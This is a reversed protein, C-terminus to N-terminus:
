LYNIDPMKENEATYANDSFGALARDLAIEAKGEWLQGEQEKNQAYFVYRVLARAVNSHYQRPVGVAIDAETSTATIDKPTPVYDIQIGEIISDMGYPFISIKNNRKIYIPQIANSPVNYAYLDATNSFNFPNNLNGVANPYFNAETCPVYGAYIQTFDATQFSAAGTVDTNAVYQKGSHTVYTNALYDTNATWDQFGNLKYKVSVNLIKDVGEVTATATPLAYDNLYPVIDLFLTGKHNNQNKERMAMWFEQVVDNLFPALNADTVDVSKTNAAMFRAFNCIAASDM